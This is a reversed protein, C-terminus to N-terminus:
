SPCFWGLETWDAFWRRLRSPTADDGAAAIARTLTRGQALAELIAFAPATERRYFLRNQYRHVALYTRRRVPRAVRRPM